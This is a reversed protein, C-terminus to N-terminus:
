YNEGTICGDPSLLVTLLKVAAHASFAALTEFCALVRCIISKGNYPLLKLLKIRQCMKVYLVFVLSFSCVWFVFTEILAWSGYFICLRGARQPHRSRSESGTLAKIDRYIASYPHFISPSALTVGPSRTCSSFRSLRIGSPTLLRNQQATASRETVTIRLYPRSHLTAHYKYLHLQEAIICLPSSYTVQVLVKGLIGRKPPEIQASYFANWCFHKMQKKHKKLCFCTLWFTWNGLCCVLWGDLCFETFLCDTLLLAAWDMRLMRAGGASILPTFRACERHKWSGLILKLKYFTGWCVRADTEILSPLQWLSWVPRRGSSTGSLGEKGVGASTVTDASLGLWCETM